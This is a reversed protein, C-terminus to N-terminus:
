APVATSACPPEALQLEARADKDAWVRDSSTLPRNISAQVWDNM